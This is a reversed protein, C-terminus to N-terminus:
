CRRSGGSSLYLCPAERDGTENDCHLGRTEARATSWVVDGCNVCYITGHDDPVDPLM